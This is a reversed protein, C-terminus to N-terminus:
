KFQLSAFISYILFIIASILFVIGFGFYAILFGSLALIISRVFHYGLFLLGIDAAYSKKNTIKTLVFENGAGAVGGGVGLLLILISVLSLNVFGVTALFISYIFGGFILLRKLGMEKRFLFISVGGLLTQLGLLIGVAEIGFGKSKLFVPFIYGSSLGSSIGSILFLLLFKKFTSDMKKFHLNGIMKPFSIKTKFKDKLSFAIPLSLLGIIILFILIHTFLFFTLLFGAIFMGLATLVSDITRMHILNKGKHRNQELFFARNVSWICAESLGEFCKGAAYGFISFAFYYIINAIIIFINNLIFFAKRGVFDSVIGFSTRALQFVLPYVAFILGINQISINREVLIIPILIFLIGSIFASAGQLFLGYRIQSMNM